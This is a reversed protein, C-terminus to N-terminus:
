QETRRDIKDARKLITTYVDNRTLRWRRRHQARRPVFIHWLLIIFQLNVQLENRECRCLILIIDNNIIIILKVGSPWFPTWSEFHLMFTAYTGIFYYSYEIATATPLSDRFFFWPFFFLIFIFIKLFNKFFTGLSRNTIFRDSQISRKFLNLIIVIESYGPLMLKVLRRCYEVRAATWGGYFHWLIWRPLELYDNFKQDLWLM